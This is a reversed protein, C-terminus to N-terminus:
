LIFQVYKPCVPCEGGGGVGPYGVESKFLLSSVERGGGVIEPYGVESKLFLSSM